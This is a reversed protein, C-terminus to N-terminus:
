PRVAADGEVDGLQDGLPGTRVALEAGGVERRVVEGATAREGPQRRRREDEEAAPARRGPDGFEAPLGEVWGAEHGEADGHGGEGAGGQERQPRQHPLKGAVAGGAEADEERCGGREEQVFGPKGPRLEERGGEGQERNGRQQLSPREMGAEDEPDAVQHMRDRQQGQRSKGQECEPRQGLSVPPARLGRRQRLQEQPDAREDEEPPEDVAGVVYLAVEEVVQDFGPGSDVRRRPLVRAGPEAVSEFREAVRDHRHHQRERV